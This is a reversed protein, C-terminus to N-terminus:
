KLATTREAMWLVDQNNASASDGVQGPGTGPPPTYTCSDKWKHIESHGDAFSIGGDGGHTRAPYDV